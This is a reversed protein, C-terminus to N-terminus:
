QPVEAIEHTDPKTKKPWGWAILVPFAIASGVAFGIPDFIGWILTIGVAVAALFPIITSDPHEHRSDPAADLM